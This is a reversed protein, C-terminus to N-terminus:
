LCVRGETLQCVLERWMFHWYHSEGPIRLSMPLSSMEQEAAVTCVWGPGRVASGLQPAVKVVGRCIPCATPILRYTSPLDAARQGGAKLHNTVALVAPCEAGIDCACTKDKRVFHNRPSTDKPFVVLYYGTMPTVTVGRNLLAQSQEGLAPPSATPHTALSPHDGSTTALAM